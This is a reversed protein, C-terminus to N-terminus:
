QKEKKGLCNPDKLGRQKAEAKTHPICFIRCEDHWNQSCGACTSDSINRNAHKVIIM